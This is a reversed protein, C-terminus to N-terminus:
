PIATEAPLAQEDPLIFFLSTSSAIPTGASIAPPKRRRLKPGSEVSTSTSVKRESHRCIAPRAEAFAAHDVEIVLRSRRDRGFHRVRHHSPDLLFEGVRM